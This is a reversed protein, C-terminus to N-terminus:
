NKTGDIPRLGLSPASTSEFSPLDCACFPSVQTSLNAPKIRSGTIFSKFENSGTVICRQPRNSSRSITVAARTTCFGCPSNELLCVQIEAYCEQSFNFLTGFSYFIIVAFANLNIKGAYKGFTSLFAAKSEKVECNKWIILSLWVFKLFNRGRRLYSKFLYWDRSIFRQLQSVGSVLRIAWIVVYWNKVVPLLSEDVVWCCSTWCLNIFVQCFWNFSKDPYRWGLLTSIHTQQYKETEWANFNAKKTIPALAPTMFLHRTVAIPKENHLWVLCSDM